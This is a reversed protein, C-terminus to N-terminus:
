ACRYLEVRISDSRGFRRFANGLNAAVEVLGASGVYVVIENPAVEAFTSRLPGVDAGDIRARWAPLSNNSLELQEQHINTILNGFRDNHIIRGCLKNDHFEARHPLSLLEPSEARPGFSQPAAGAALHAAVPAFIDRGHFTNSVQPHFYKRNEVEFLAEGEFDRHVWTLIGNDPALVFQGAYRALLIRRRTGVGPDVVVVHITCPPFWPFAHRLVFAAHRVNQPEIEHSIDVIGAGPVIGLIVGKMAGVYHDHLGFDTTLTILAM